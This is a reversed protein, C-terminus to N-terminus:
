YSTRAHSNRGAPPPLPVPSQQPRTSYAGERLSDYTHRASMGLERLRGSLRAQLLAKKRDGLAIGTQAYVLNRLLQFEADTLLADSM